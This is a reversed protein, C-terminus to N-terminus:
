QSADLTLNQYVKFCLFPCKLISKCMEQDYCTIINALVWGIERELDVLGEFESWGIILNNLFDNKFIHVIYENSDASAFNGILRLAVSTQNIDKSSLMRMLLDTINM